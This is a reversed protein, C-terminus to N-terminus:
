SVPERASNSRQARAQHTKSQRAESFRLFRELTCATRPKCLEPQM